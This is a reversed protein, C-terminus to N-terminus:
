RPGTASNGIMGAYEHAFDASTRTLTSFDVSAPALTAPVYYVGARLVCYRFLLAGIQICAGALVAASPLWLLAALPLILGVLVVGIWYVAGLSGQNLRHVSERASGPARKM